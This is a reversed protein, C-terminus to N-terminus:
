GYYEIHQGGDYDEQDRCTASYAGEEVMFRKELHKAHEVDGEKDKVTYLEEEGVDCPLIAFVIRVFEGVRGVGVDAVLGHGIVPVPNRGENAEEDVDNRGEAAAEEGLLDPIRLVRGTIGVSRGEKM